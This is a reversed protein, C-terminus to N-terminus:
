IPYKNKVLNFAEIIVRQRSELTNKDILFKNYKITEFNDLNIDSFDEFQYVLPSPRKVTLFYDFFKFKGGEHLDRNWIWANPIQLSDAVILGHLSQSMIFECDAIANIVEECDTTRPDILKWKSPIDIKLFDLYQSHHPIIGCEYNKIKAAENFIGVLLGPDGCPTHIGAYNRFINLTLPGRLLLFKHSKVRIKDFFSLSFNSMCGTGLVSLEKRRFIFKFSKISWGLTSGLSVVDADILESYKYPILYKKFIYPSIWDGFNEKNWWYLKLM